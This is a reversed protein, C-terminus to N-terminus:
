NQLSDDSAREVTSVWVVSERGSQSWAAPQGIRHTGRRLADRENGVGSGPLRPVVPDPALVAEGDRGSRGPWRRDDPHDRELQGPRSLRTHDEDARGDVATMQRTM